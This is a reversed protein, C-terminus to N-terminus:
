GCALVPVYCLNTPTAQGQSVLYYFAMDSPNTTYQENWRPLYRNTHSLSPTPTQALSTGYECRGTLRVATSKYAIAM